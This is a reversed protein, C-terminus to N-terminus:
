YIIDFASKILNKTYDNQPNTLINKAVGQELISGDKMVILNHSISRIVRLDHSIFIYTTKHNKQLQLLLELIQKQISLDLASTPEDLLVFKPNLVFSRAIAIRQRQGGSFEHPYLNGQYPNLGVEALLDGARTDREKKTMTTNIELPESIITNVRMRPNLSSWPDQFVAQVSRRMERKGAGSLQTVDEGQFYISGVPVEGDTSPNELGLVMKATTTKGCGSEGVLGITKGAPVDFSVDDVAKLWDFSGIIPLGKNVQYWKRINRVQIIPDGDNSCGIASPVTSYDRKETTTM